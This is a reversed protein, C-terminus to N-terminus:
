SVFLIAVSTGGLFPCLRFSKIKEFKCFCVIVYSHSHHHHHFCLFIDRRRWQLQPNAGASRISRSYPGMRPGLLWLGAAWEFGGSVTALQGDIFPGPLSSNRRFDPGGNELRLNKRAVLINHHAGSNECLWRSNAATLRHQKAPGEEMKTERKSLRDRNRQLERDGSAQAGKAASHGTTTTKRHNSMDTLLIGSGLASGLDWHGSNWKSTIRWHPPSSSSSEQLVADQTRNPQGRGHGRVRCEAAKWRRKNAFRVGLEQQEKAGESRRRM